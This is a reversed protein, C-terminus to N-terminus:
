GFQRRPSTDPPRETGIRGGGRGGVGEWALLCTLKRIGAQVPTLPINIGLAEPLASSTLAHMLTYGGGPLLSIIKCIYIVGTM